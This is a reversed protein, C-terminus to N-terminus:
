SKVGEESQVSKGTAIGTNYCAAHIYEVLYRRPIKINKGIRLHRINGNRILRYAMSRGIGLAIQLESITLVDPYDEFMSGQNENRENNYHLEIKTM